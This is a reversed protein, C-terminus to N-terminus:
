VRLFPLMRRRTDRWDEVSEVGCRWLTHATAEDIDLNLSGPPVEIEIWPTGSAAADDIDESENSHIATNVVAGIYDWISRLEEKEGVSQIKLGLIPITPDPFSIDDIPFNSSLGGDIHPHGDLYIPTFLGPVAMSARVVRPLSEERTKRDQSWSTWVKQRRWLPCTVIALPKRAKYMKSLLEREFAQVLGKGTNLGYPRRWPFMRAGLSVHLGPITRMIIDKLDTDPEKRGCVFASVIAGASAGGCGAIEVGAAELASVAGAHAIYNIGGGSLVLYVKKPLGTAKRIPVKFESLISM